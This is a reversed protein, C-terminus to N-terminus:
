VISSQGARLRVTSGQLEPIRHLAAMAAPTQDKHVAEPAPQQLESTPIQPGMRYLLSGMLERPDHVPLTLM